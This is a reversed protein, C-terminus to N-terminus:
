KGKNKNYAKAQTTFTQLGAASDPYLEGSYPNKRYYSGRTKGTVREMNSFAKGYTTKPKSPKSPKSPKNFSTLGKNDAFNGKDGKLVGETTNVTGKMSPNTIKGKNGKTLMNKVQGGISKEGKYKGGGFITGAIDSIAKGVQTDKLKKGVKREPAPGSKLPRGGITNQFKFPFASKDGQYKMKFGSPEMANPNKKFNPM